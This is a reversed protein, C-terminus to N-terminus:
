CSLSVVSHGVDKMGAIGAGEHMCGLVDAMEGAHFQRAAPLNRDLSVM